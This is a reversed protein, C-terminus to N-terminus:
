LVERDRRVSMLLVINGVLSLGLLVGLWFPPVPIDFQTSFIYVVLALQAAGGFVKPSVNLGVKEKMQKIM